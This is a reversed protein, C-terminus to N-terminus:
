RDGDLKVGLCGPSYTGTQRVSDVVASVIRHPVAFSLDDSAANMGVLRGTYDFLPGGSSCAATAADHQVTIPPSRSVSSIIGGTVAYLRGEPHGVAYVGDGPGADSM